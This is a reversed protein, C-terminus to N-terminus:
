GVRYVYNERSKLICSDILCDQSRLEVVRSLLMGSTKRSRDYRACVDELLFFVRGAWGAKIGVLVLFLDGGSSVLRVSSEVCSSSVEVLSLSCRNWLSVDGPTPPIYIVFLFFFFSVGALPLASGQM